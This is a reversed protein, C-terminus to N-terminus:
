PQPSGKSQVASAKAMQLQTTIQDALHQDGDALEDPTQEGLQDLLFLRVHQMLEPHLDPELNDKIWNFLDSAFRLFPQSFELAPQARIDAAVQNLSDVVSLRERGRRQTLRNGDDLVFHVNAIRDSVLIKRASLFSKWHLKIDEHLLIESCRADSEHLFGTRYIKNWPYNATQSLIAAQSLSAEHLSGVAVGARRWLAEDYPIQGWGGDHEVRSDAHKFLCFDFSKGKLDDMLGVLEPTLLDDSDVFLLHTTAVRGIARNRCVGPGRRQDHRILTLQGDLSGDAPLIAAPTVQVDSADDVVIIAEVCSMHRVQFLLRRLLATDNCVPIVLTLTM